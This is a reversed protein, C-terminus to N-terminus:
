GSQLEDYSSFYVKEMIYAITKRKSRGDFVAKCNQM